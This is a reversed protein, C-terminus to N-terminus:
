STKCKQISSTCVLSLFAHPQNTKVEVEQGGSDSRSITRRVLSNAKEDVPSLDRELMPVSHQMKDSPSGREKVIFAFPPDSVSLHPKASSSADTTPLQPEPTVLHSIPVPPQPEPNGMLEMNSLGLGIIKKEEAFAKNDLEPNDPSAVSISHGRVTGTETPSTTNGYSYESDGRSHTGTVPPTSKAGKSWDRSSGKDSEPDYEGNNLTNYTTDQMSKTYESISAYDIPTLPSKM